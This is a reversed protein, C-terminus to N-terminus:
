VPNLGIESSLNIAGVIRRVAISSDILVPLLVREGYVM